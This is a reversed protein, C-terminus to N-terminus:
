WNKSPEPQLILAAVMLFLTLDTQAQLNRERKKYVERGVSFTGLQSIKWINSFSQLPFSVRWKTLNRYKKILGGPLQKTVSIFSYNVEQHCSHGSLVVYIGGESDVFSVLERRGIHSHGQNMVHQPMDTAHIAWISAWEERAVTLRQSVAKATELQFGTQWGASAHQRKATYIDSMPTLCQSSHMKNCVIFDTARLSLTCRSKCKLKVNYFVLPSILM